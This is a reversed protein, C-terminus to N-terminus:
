WSPAKLYQGSKYVSWASFGQGQFVKRAAKANTTPNFLEENRSIGFERRRAPGLNGLMNIQWLGYSKDGTRANGNYAKPDWQTSEYYSIKTMTRADAGNFGADRALKEVQAGTLKGGGGSGGGGGGTSPEAPTTGGGGSSSPDQGRNFSGTILSVWDLKFKPPNISEVVGEQYARFRETDPTPNMSLYRMFNIQVYTLMPVMHDNFLIDTVGITMLAGRSHFPGLDLYCPNPLLIGIDGTGQRYTTNHLGNCVRYLFELDYHTGRTRLEEMHADSVPVIYDSGSAQGQVEPERNLLLQFQIHELGEQLVATVTDSPDPIFDTGVNQSGQITTPNYLFRFGYKTGAEKLAYTFGHAGMTITGLPYKNRLPPKSANVAAPLPQGPKDREHEAARSDYGLDPTIFQISPHPPPNFTTPLTAATVVSAM